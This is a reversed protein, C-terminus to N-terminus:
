SCGCALHLSITKAMSWCAKKVSVASQNALLPDYIASEQDLLKITAPTLTVLIWHLCSASTQMGWRKQSLTGVAHHSARGPTLMSDRQNSRNTVCALLAINHYPNVCPTSVHLYPYNPSRDQLSAEM